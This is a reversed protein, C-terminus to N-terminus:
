MPLHSLLTCGSMAVVVGARAAAPPQREFVFALAPVGRWRLPAVLQLAGLHEGAQGAAGIAGQLCTSQAEITPAAPQGPPGPSLPAIAAGATPAAASNGSLRATLLAALQKPDSQEGLDSDIRAGTPGPLLSTTSSPAAGASASRSEAGSSAAVSANRGNGSRALVVAVGAIIVAAAAAAGAV